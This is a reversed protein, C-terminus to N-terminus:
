HREPSMAQGDFFDVITILTSSSLRLASLSALSHFTTAFQTLSPLAACPELADTISTQFNSRHYHPVRNSRV